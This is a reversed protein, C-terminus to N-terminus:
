LDTSISLDKKIKSKKSVRQQCEAKSSDKSKSDSMSITIHKSTASTQSEDWLRTM